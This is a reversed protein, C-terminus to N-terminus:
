FYLNSSIIALLAYLNNMISSIVAYKSVFYVNYKFYRLQNLSIECYLIFCNFLLIGIAVFLVFKNPYNSNLRRKFQVKENISALPVQEFGVPALPYHSLNTATQRNANTTFRSTGNTTEIQVTPELRNLNNSAM